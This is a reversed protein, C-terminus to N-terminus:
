LDFGIHPCKGKHICNHKLKSKSILSVPIKFVEERVKTLYRYELRQNKDLPLNIRLNFHMDTYRTDLHYHKKHQGNEKDSHPHDHVPYISQKIQYWKVPKINIDMWIEHNDWELDLITNTEIVCLVKDM